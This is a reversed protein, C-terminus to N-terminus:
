YLSGFWYSCLWVPIQDSIPAFHGVDAIWIVPKGPILVYSCTATYTSYVSCYREQPLHGHLWVSLLFFYNSASRESRNSLQPKQKSTEAYM